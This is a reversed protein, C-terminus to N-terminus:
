EDDGVLRDFRSASGGVPRTVNITTPANPRGSAMPAVAQPASPPVSFVNPGTETEANGLEGLLSPAGQAGTGVILVRDGVELLYVSHKSSLHTRAIVRLLTSPDRGPLYKRAALSLGGCVALAIAIGGTGFWWGTTLESRKSSKRTSSSRPPFPRDAQSHADTDSDSASRSRVSSTPPQISATPPAQGAEVKSCLSDHAPALLGLVLLAGSYFLRRLTATPM